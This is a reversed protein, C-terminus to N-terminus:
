VADFIEESTAQGDTAYLMTYGTSRRWRRDRPRARPPALLRLVGRRTATSTSSSRPTPASRSAAPVAARQDGRRVGRQARADGAPVPAHARAARSAARADGAHVPARGHPVRERVFDPNIRLVPRRECRRGRRDAGRAVGRRSAAVAAGNMAYSHAPVANLVRRVLLRRRRDHRRRRRPSDHRTARGASVGCCGPRLDILSPEIPRGPLYLPGCRRALVALSAPRQATRPAACRDVDLSASPASPCSCAWGAPCGAAGCRTPSSRTVCPKPMGTSLRACAPAVRRPRSATRVRGDGGHALRSCAAPRSERSSARWGASAARAPRRAPGTPRLCRSRPWAMCPSARRPRRRGCASRTRWEDGVAALEVLYRRAPLACRACTLRSRAPGSM